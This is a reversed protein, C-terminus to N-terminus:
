NGIDLTAYDYNGSKLDDSLNHLDQISNSQLKHQFDIRNLLGQDLLKSPLGFSM